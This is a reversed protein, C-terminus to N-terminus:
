VYAGAFPQSISLRGFLVWLAQKQKLVPGTSHIVLPGPLLAGMAFLGVSHSSHFRM